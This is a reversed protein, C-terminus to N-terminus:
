NNECTELDKECDEECEELNKESENIIKVHKQAKKTIMKVSTIELDREYTERDMEYTRVGTRKNNTRKM